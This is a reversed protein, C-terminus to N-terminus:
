PLVSPRGGYVGRETGSVICDKQVDREGGGTKTKRVIIVPDMHLVKVVGNQVKCITRITQRYM